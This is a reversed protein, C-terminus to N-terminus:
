GGRAVKHIPFGCLNKHLKIDNIDYIQHPSLPANMVKKSNRFDIFYTNWQQIRMGWIIELKRQKEVALNGSMVLLFLFRRQLVVLAAPRLCLAVDRDHNIAIVM